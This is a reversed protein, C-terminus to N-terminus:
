ALSCESCFTQEAEVIASIYMYLGDTVSVLESQLGGQLLAALLSLYPQNCRSMQYRLIRSLGGESLVGDRFLSRGSMFGVSLVGEDYICAELIKLNILSLKAHVHSHCRMPREVVQCLTCPYLDLM